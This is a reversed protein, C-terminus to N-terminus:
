SSDKGTSVPQIREYGRIWNVPLPGDQPAKKGESAYDKAM